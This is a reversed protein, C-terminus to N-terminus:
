EKQPKYREEKHAVGPDDSHIRAMTEFSKGQVLIQEQIDQLEEMARLKDAKTIEPYMVIQQFSLKMNIFPISDKPLSNFFSSVEKPTVSVASTITREMEQALIKDKIVSRFENKIQATSKEYFAELAERGGMKNEIIRLRNEMEADVQEDSVIISDLKAQNVLLEQIMLQELVNCSFDYDVEMESQRAQLQQQELDSLLIINDGVQAVVNNVLKGPQASIIGASFLFSFLLVRSM